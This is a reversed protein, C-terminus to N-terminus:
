QFKRKLLERAKTLWVQDAISLQDIAPSTTACSAKQLRVSDGTFELFRAMVSFSGAKSKWERQAYLESAFKGRDPLSGLRNMWDQAKKAITKKTSKGGEWLQSAYEDCYEAGRFKEMALAIDSADLAAEGEEILNGAKESFAKAFISSRQSSYSDNLRVAKEFDDIALDCNGLRAISAGRIYIARAENPAKVLIDECLGVVVEYEGASWAEKASAFLTDIENKGAASQEIHDKSKASLSYISELQTKQWLYLSLIVVSSVSSILLAHSLRFRKSRKQQVRYSDAQVEIPAKGLEDIAQIEEDSGGLDEYM